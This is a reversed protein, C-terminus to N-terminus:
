NKHDKNVWPKMEPKAPTYHSFASTILRFKSASTKSDRELRLSKPRNWLSFLSDCIM